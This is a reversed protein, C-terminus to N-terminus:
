ANDDEGDCGEKGEEAMMLGIRENYIKEVDMGFTLGLSDILESLMGFCKKGFNRVSMIEVEDRSVVDAITCIGDAKLRLVTRTGLVNIYKVLDTKLVKIMRDSEEILMRRQEEDAQEAKRAAEVHADIQSALTKVMAKLRINEQRKEELEALRSKLVPVETIKRCVKSFIQLVRNGSLGLAAGTANASRGTILSNAVSAEKPTIVDMSAMMNVLAIYFGMSALRRGGADMIHLQRRLDMTRENVDKRMAECSEKEKRLAKECEGLDRMPGKLSEIDDEDVLMIGRGKNVKMSPILGSVAWNGITQRSVGVRRAAETLMIM